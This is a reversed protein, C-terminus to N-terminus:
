PALTGPIVLPSKNSDELTLLGGSISTWMLFDLVSILSNSFAQDRLRDRHGIHKPTPDRRRDAGCIDSKISERPIGLARGHEASLKSSTTIYAM